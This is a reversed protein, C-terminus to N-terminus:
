KELSYLALIEMHYLSYLKVSFHPQTETIHSLLCARSQTKNKTQRKYKVDPSLADTLTATIIIVNYNCHLSLPTYMHLRTTFVTLLNHTHSVHVLFRPTLHFILTFMRIQTHAFFTFLIIAM